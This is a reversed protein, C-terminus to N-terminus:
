PPKSTYKRIILLTSYRKKHMNTFQTDERLKHRINLDKSWKSNITIYPILYPDLKVRKYTFAGNEWCWKNFVSDKAKQM